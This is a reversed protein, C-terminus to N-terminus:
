PPLAYPPAASTWESTVSPAGSASAGPAANRPTAHAFRSGGGALTRQRATPAVPVGPSRLPGSVSAPLSPPPPPPPTSM